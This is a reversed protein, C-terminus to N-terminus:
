PKLAPAWEFRGDDVASQFVREVEDAARRQRLYETVLREIDKSSPTPRARVQVVFYMALEGPQEFRPTSMDAVIVPPLELEPSPFPNLPSAARFGLDKEKTAYNRGFRQQWRTLISQSPIAADKGSATARYATMIDRAELGFQGMAEKLDAIKQQQEQEPLANDSTTLTAALRYYHREEPPYILSGSKEWISRLEEPPPPTFEAVLNRYWDGVGVIAGAMPRANRILPETDLFHTEVNQAVIEGNIFDLAKARLARVDVKTEANGFEPYLSRFDEKTLDTRGIDLLVTDDGLFPWLSTRDVPHVALRLEELRHDFQQPLLEVYLHKRAEQDIKEEPHALPPLRARLEVLNFGDRTEVVPGIQRVQGNRVASEVLPDIEASGVPMTFLLGDFPLTTTPPHDAAVSSLSAGSGILEQRIREARERVERREEAPDQIPSPFQAWYFQLREPLYFQDRHRRAYYAVDEPFIKVEPGVIEDTWVLTFVPYMLSRISLFEVYPSAGSEQDKGLLLVSAMYRVARSLESRREERAPEWAPSDWRRALNPNPARSLLLFLYLDQETIPVGDLTAFVVNPDGRYSDNFFPYDPAAAAISGLGVMAWIMAAVAFLGRRPLAHLPFRVRTLPMAPIM